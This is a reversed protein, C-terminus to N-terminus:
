AEGAVLDETIYRLIDRVSIIGIVKGSKTIPIHRYGGVDMKHLAFAIKDNVDLTEPNPTMFDSVPRAALAAAEVNLRLLADRESFIGKLEQGEMVLVCGIRQETLVRMAERVNTQPSVSKPPRPGLVQIRDKVLSREVACNAKPM